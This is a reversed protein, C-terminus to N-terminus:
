RNKTHRQRVTRENAPERQRGMLHAIAAEDCARMVAVALAPIDIIGFMTIGDTLLELKGGVKAQRRLESALAWEICERGKM